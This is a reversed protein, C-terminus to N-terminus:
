SRSSLPTLGLERAVDAYDEWTDVDRPLPRDVALRAVREVPENDVLKWVAKDGHLGRLTPFAAASFVFPHGLGDRYSTVAAWTRDAAWGALVEDILSADVAPMDGLLLAIAVCDGAVDLGALLSSACGTGYAENSVISARTPRLSAAVDPGGGGVVVIVRDLGSHEAERMTWNLLTTDGLQLLQKPQGLRTSRGAGLVV